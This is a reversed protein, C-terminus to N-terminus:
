YKAEGTGAKRLQFPLQPGDSSQWELQAPGAPRALEGRAPMLKM